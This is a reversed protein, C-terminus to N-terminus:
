RTVEGEGDVAQGDQQGLRAWASTGQTLSSDESARHEGSKPTRAHHDLISSLDAEAFRGHVAAHGLAWDVESAEFLKALALAESMKVRMRPTGAAAAEILWLRAGEGLDLFESEAANRARPRRELPGEPQPPFHAEDIRPSGPTVRHHRAVEVPGKGDPGDDVHVIIVQEDEGVGHARVWVTAGLLQHPVSYQGSEFTIMPTNAPVVRTTGFAVTHVTAAVPHLRLREEALMEVPPRKTMRHPRTNVKECFVECAAELEAFSGYEGLLNTDRPVLDAKSIKVSSETGGKSAPDAPVCTHVSVSYHEAFAVLQPNRVAIGAIHEVTVTKENDTLVYTPVGGLRRFTVDLAAFVSPMTKDRLPLVVRFRSWALWAVFLVTKVGDIVPGDGYDYQLWMGPETVWPRHVRVHGARYSAKVKAVARRTTRESGTYGLAVLKEHAVDARVKGKSRDVWEEVKPLFEDILMPRLAAQDLVGAAARRQVYHKVTNPSCGALEGADRLSGTLDYANLIKMIEEASKM